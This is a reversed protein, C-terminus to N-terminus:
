DGRPRRFLAFKTGKRLTAENLGIRYQEHAECGLCTYHDPHWPEDSGEWEWAFTGCDPCRGTQEAQWVAIIDRDEPLWYPEGEVEEIREPTARDHLWRGLPTSPNRTM